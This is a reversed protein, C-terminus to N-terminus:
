CYGTTVQVYFRDYKFVWNYTERRNVPMVNEDAKINLALSLQLSNVVTDDMFSPKRSVLGFM